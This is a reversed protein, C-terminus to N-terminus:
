LPLRCYFVVLRVFSLKNEVMFLLGFMLHHALHGTHKTEHCSVLKLLQIFIPFVGFGVSSLDYPRSFRPAM